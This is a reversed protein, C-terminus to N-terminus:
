RRDSLALWAVDTAIRTARQYPLSVYHTAEVYSPLEHCPPSGIVLRSWHEPHQPGEDLRKEGGGMAGLCLDQTRTGQKHGESRAM